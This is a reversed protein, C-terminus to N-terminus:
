SAAAQDDDGVAPRDLDLGLYGLLRWENQRLGLIRISVRDRHPLLKRVVQALDAARVDRARTLDLRFEGGPEVEGLADSVVQAVDGGLFSEVVVSRQARLHM